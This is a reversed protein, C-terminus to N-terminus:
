PTTWPLQWPPLTVKQGPFTLKSKLIYNLIILQTFNFQALDNKNFVSDLNKKFLNFSLFRKKENSIATLSMSLENLRGTNDGLAAEAAKRAREAQPLTALQWLYLYFGSLFRKFVLFFQLFSGIFGFLFFFSLSVAELLARLDELETQLAIRKRESITLANRAEDGAAREAELAM